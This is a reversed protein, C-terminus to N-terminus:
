WTVHLQPTQFPNEGHEEISELQLQVQVLDVQLGADCLPLSRMQKFCHPNSVYALCDVFREDKCTRNPVPILRPSYTAARREQKVNRTAQTSRSNRM